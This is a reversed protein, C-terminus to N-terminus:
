EGGKEGLVIALLGFLGAGAQTVPEAWQAGMGLSVALASLGAWTSPEQLRKIIVGM